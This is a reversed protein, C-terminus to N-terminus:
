YKICKGFKRNRFFKLIRKFIEKQNESVYLPDYGNYTKYDYNPKLFNKLIGPIMGNYSLSWYYNQLVNNQKLRDIDQKIITNTNYKSNLSLIDSGSYDQNFANEPDIQLLIIQQIPIIGFNREILIM